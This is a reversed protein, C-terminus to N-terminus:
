LQRGFVATRHLFGSSGTLLFSLVGLIVMAVVAVIGVKLQSWKVKQPSAM